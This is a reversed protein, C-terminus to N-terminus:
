RVGWTNGNINTSTAGGIVRYDLRHGVSLLHSLPAATYIGVVNITYATTYTGNTALVNLM